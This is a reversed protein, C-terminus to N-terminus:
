TWEVLYLDHTDRIYTYAFARGDAAISIPLLDAARAFEQPLLHAWLERHGTTLDVRFVSIADPDEPQFDRRFYAFRGDSDWQVAQDATTLGPVARPGNGSVPYLAKPQGSLSALFWAGDPSVLSGAVGDQTVPGISGRDMDLIYTRVRRGAETACFLIHKSDPFWGAGLCSFRGDTLIKPSGPGTPLVMLRVVQGSEELALAMTGDPSFAQATGSGLRVAPSGDLKRMYVSRGTGGGRGGESFLLTTGDASIDAVLTWDFWSLDREEGTALIRYRIGKSSIDTTVLLRGDRSVDRLTVGVPLRVMTRLHGTLTVGFIGATTRGSELESATFWVEDGAPSWVVSYVVAWGTSLIKKRGDLDVLCVSSGECFAVSTADHRVRAEVIRNATEYLVKDLPFELRYKGNFSSVIALTKGDPGWDAAVVEERIPRPAVGTTDIRALTGRIFGGAHSPQLAIALEGSPSVALVDADPQGLPRSEPTERRTSYIQNKSGQWTASYLLTKGDPAFRASWINGRRFTLRHYSPVASSSRGLYRGAWLAAAIPASVLIFLARRSMSRVPMAGSEPLGKHLDHSELENRADGIDRLRRKPDKELCRRVVRIVAAPQFTPLATWDPDGSVVASLTDTVTGRAFASRGTLMEYLVCGFAWVDTRKDVPLGRAQEPSMYAVTGLVVGVQTMEAPSTITPSNTSAAAPASAGRDLAKAIGFDLVKVAGDARVKINAPKLDRHIIGQEHAAELAEAIQRAIPLADNIPIPGRAIKQALDEGDVFEMVLARVPGAEELGHIHAIHPHNLSALIEAERQFRALREPDSAFTEPLAKIAVDRKLRTDRAKYVEGMGGAGVAAVIEYQGVRTGPLLSM